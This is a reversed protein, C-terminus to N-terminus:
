PGEGSMRHRSQFSEVFESLPKTKGADIAELGARIAQVTEDGDEEAARWLALAEEPSMERTGEALKGSLFHHFSELETLTNM